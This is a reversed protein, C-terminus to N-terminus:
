RGLVIQFSVRKHPTASKGDDPGSQKWVNSMELREVHQVQQLRVYFSALFELLTNENHSSTSAICIQLFTPIRECKSFFDKVSFKM